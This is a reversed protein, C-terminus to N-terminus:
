VLVVSESVFHFVVSLIVIHCRMLINLTLRRLETTYCCADRRYELETWLWIPLASPMGALAVENGHSLGRFNDVREAYLINKV